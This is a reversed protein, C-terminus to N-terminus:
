APFGTNGRLGPTDKLINQIEEPIAQSLCNNVDANLAEIKKVQRYLNLKMNLEAIEKHTTEIERKTNSALWHLIESCRYIASVGEHVPSPFAGRNQDMLKRVYQRSVDLMNAIDTLGVYDPSAEILTAGEIARHVDTIASYIADEVSEAERIFELSIRGIQGIGVLADDCGSKGLAELTNEPDSEPDPLKFKLVFEYKNM